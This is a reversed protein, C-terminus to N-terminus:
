SADEGDGGRRTRAFDDIVVRWPTEVIERGKDNIVNNVRSNVKSNEVLVYNRARARSLSFSLSMISFKKEISLHVRDRIQLTRRPYITFIQNM